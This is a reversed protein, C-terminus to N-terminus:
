VVNCCCLKSNAIFVMMPYMTIAASTSAMADANIGNWLVTFTFIMRVPLSMTYSASAM